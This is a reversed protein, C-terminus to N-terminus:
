SLFDGRHGHRVVEEVQYLPYPAEWDGEERNVM